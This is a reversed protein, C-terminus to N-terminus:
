LYSMRGVVFLKTNELEKKLMNSIVPFFGQPFGIEEQWQLFHGYVGTRQKRDKLWNERYHDERSEWPHKEM